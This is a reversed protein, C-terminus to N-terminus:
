RSERGVAPSDDLEALAATVKELVFTAFADPHQHAAVPEDIITRVQSM